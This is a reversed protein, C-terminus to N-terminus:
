KRRYTVGDDSVMTNGKVHFTMWEGSPWRVVIKDGSVEYKVQEYAM